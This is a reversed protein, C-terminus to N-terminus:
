TVTLHTCAQEQVTDYPTSSKKSSVAKLVTGTGYKCPLIIKDFSFVRSCLFEGQAMWVNDIGLLVGLYLEACRGEKRPM